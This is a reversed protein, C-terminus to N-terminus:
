REEARFDSARADFARNPREDDFHATGPTVFRTSGYSLLARLSDVSVRLMGALYYRLGSERGGPPSLSHWEEHLLEGQITVRNGPM